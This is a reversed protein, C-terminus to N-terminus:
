PRLNEPLFSWDVGAVNRPLQHNDHETLWKDVVGVGGYSTIASLLEARLADIEIQAKQSDSDSEANAKLYEWNRLAVVRQFLKAPSLGHKKQLEEALRVTEASM